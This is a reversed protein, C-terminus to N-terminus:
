SPLLRKAWISSGVAELSQPWKYACAQHVERHCRLCQVTFSCDATVHDSRLCNFCRDVLDAAVPRRPPLPPPPPPSHLVRRWQERCTVLKWGDGHPQSRPPHHSPHDRRANVMFGWPAECPGPNSSAGGGRLRNCGGEGLCQRCLLFPTNWPRHPDRLPPRTYLLWELPDVPQGAIPPSPPPPQTLLIHHSLPPAPTDGAVGILDSDPHQLTPKPSSPEAPAPAMTVLLQLYGGVCLFVLHYCFMLYAFDAYKNIAAGTSTLEFGAGLLCV